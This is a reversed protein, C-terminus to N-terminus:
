RRRSRLLMTTRANVAFSLDLEGATVTALDQDSSRAHVAVLADLGGHRAVHDDVLRAPVEPDSLDAAIWSVGPLDPARDRAAPAGKRGALHLLEPKTPSIEAPHHVAM